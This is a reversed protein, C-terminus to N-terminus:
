LSRLSNYPALKNKSPQNRHCTEITLGGRSVIGVVTTMYFSYLKNLWDCMAEMDRWMVVNTLLLSAGILLDASIRIALIDAVSVM